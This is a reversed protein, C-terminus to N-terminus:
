RLDARLEQPVDEVTSGTTRQLARVYAVIAWRDEASVQFKYSPMSRRGNTIVHFIEGDNFAKVRDEHLNTPIWIARQGIVGRGQGTRDHCPSCYTNYRRQGTQLLGIDITVPNRGIWQNDSIGTYFVDDEKLMGVAVTGEVPPRSARHDSFIPSEAQPKYKGQRDMDPFIVIPTSRSTQGACGTLVAAAAVLALLAPTRM